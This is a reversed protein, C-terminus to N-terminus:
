RVSNMTFSFTYTFVDSSLLHLFLFFSGNFVQLFQDSYLILTSVDEEIDNDDIRRQYNYPKTRLLFALIQVYIASTKWHFLCLLLLPHFRLFFIHYLLFINAKHLFVLAFSTTNSFWQWKVSFSPFTASLRKMEITLFPCEENEGSRVRINMSYIEWSKLSFNRLSHGLKIFQLGNGVNLSLKM